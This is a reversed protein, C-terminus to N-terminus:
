DTRKEQFWVCCPRKFLMRVIGSLPYRKFRQRVEAKIFIRHLPTQDTWSWPPWAVLYGPYKAPPYLQLPQSIIPCISYSPMKWPFRGYFCKKWTEKVLYSKRSQIDM